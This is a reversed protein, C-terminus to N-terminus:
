GHVLEAEAEGVRDAVVFWGGADVDATESVEDDGAAAVAGASVQEVAGM